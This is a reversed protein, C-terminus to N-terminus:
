DPTGRESSAASRRGAPRKLDGEVVNRACGVLAQVLTARVAGRPWLVGFRRPESPRPLPVRALRLGRTIPSGIDPALSVGLGHDVMMAIAALSSLEFRERAVIGERRLYRDAEKGGALSRDYRILPESRLLDHAGRKGLRQPALVVLPEERLLTWVFNKPVAFSPHTCVAADIDGNKLADYLEMSTGSQIFMKVQPHTNVFRALIEPLLSHLATNITGLRLEGTAYQDNVLTRLDALDRLMSRSRAVIRMGAATPAVTRGSRALLTAGLERELARIQQAIAAPSVDLRRAAEAMSGTDVVLLFSHLFATEM